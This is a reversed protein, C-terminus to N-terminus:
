ETKIVFAFFFQIFKNLKNLQTKAGGCARPPAPPCYFVRMTLASKFSLLFLKNLKILLFRFFNQFM